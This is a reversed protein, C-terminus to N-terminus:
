NDQEDTKRRLQVKPIENINIEQKDTPREDLTDRILAFAGSDGAVAKMIQAMAILENYTIDERKEAIDTIVRDFESKAEKKDLPTLDATESLLTGFVQKFAKRKKLTKGNAIGGKRGNEAANQGKKFRTEKGVERINDPM